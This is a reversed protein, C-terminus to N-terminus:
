RTRFVLAQEWVRSIRFGGLARQAVGFQARSVLPLAGVIFSVLFVPRAVAEGVGPAYM